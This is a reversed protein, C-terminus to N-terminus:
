HRDVRTKGHLIRHLPEQAGVENGEADIDPVFLDRQGDGSLKPLPLWLYNDHEAARLYEIARILDVQVKSFMWENIKSGVAFPLLDKESNKLVCELSM